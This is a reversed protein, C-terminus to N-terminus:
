QLAICDKGATIGLKLRTDDAFSTITTGSSLNLGILPIHVKILIPGIM